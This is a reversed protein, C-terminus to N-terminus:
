NREQYQTGAPKGTTGKDKGPKGKDKGPQSSKETAKDIVKKEDAKTFTLKWEERLHDPIPVGARLYNFVTQSRRFETMVQREIDKEDLHKFKLRLMDSPYGSQKLTPIIIDKNIIKIISSRDIKVRDRVDRSLDEIMAGSTVDVRGPVDLGLIGTKILDAYLAVYREYNMMAGTPTMIKPEIGYEALHMLAEGNSWKELQTKIGSFLEKRYEDRADQIDRPNGTSQDILYKEPIQTNALNIDKNGIMVWAQPGFRRVLLEIMNQVSLKSEIVRLCRMVNPIGVIKGRDNSPFVTVEADDFYYYEVAGVVQSGDTSYTAKNGTQIVVVDKNKNKPDLGKGAADGLRGTQLNRIPNLEKSNLEMLGVIDKGKYLKKWVGWGHISKEEIVFSTKERLEWDEVVKKMILDAAEEVKKKDYKRNPEIEFGNNIINVLRQVANYTTVDNEYAWECGDADRSILVKQQRDSNMNINVEDEETPASGMSMSQAVFGLKPKRSGIFKDLIGM